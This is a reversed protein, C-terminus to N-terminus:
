VQLNRSNLILENRNYHASNTDLADLTLMTRIWNLESGQPFHNESIECKIDNNGIMQKLLFDIHQQTDSADNPKHSKQYLAQKKLDHLHDIQNERQRNLAASRFLAELVTPPKSFSKRQPTNVGKESM